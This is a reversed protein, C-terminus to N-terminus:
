WGVRVRQRGAYQRRFAEPTIATRRYSPRAAASESEYSFSVPAGEYSSPKPFQAKVYDGIHGRWSSDMTSLFRAHKSFGAGAAIVKPDRLREGGIGALNGYLTRNHLGVRFIELFKRKNIVMPVHLEYSLPNVVGLKVLHRRTARMGQLYRNERVRAAYYREVDEILGRHVAPIYQVPHMVFFDDNALIFDDSVDPHRCAAVINGTANRYKSTRQRTPIHLVNHLWSPKHGAIVIRRHPLNEEFSRIAYRLEENDDGARVPIVIDMAEPSHAAPAGTKQELVAWLTALREVGARPKADGVFIARRLMSKVHVVRTRNDFLKWSADECNWERCPLEVISLGDTGGNLMAGFAAQNIGGYQKRWHRHEDPNRLLRLNKEWWARFFERLAHSVRVFVVGSNLPFRTTPKSTYALDFSTDWVDDLPRTIFTDTDILLLRAGDEAKQVVRNWEYMKQTNVLHTHWAYSGKAFNKVEVRRISVRWGPCHERATHALVRAMREFQEGGFWVSHLQMM